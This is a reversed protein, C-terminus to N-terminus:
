TGETLTRELLAVDLGGAGEDASECSSGGVLTTEDDSVARFWSATDGFPEATAGPARTEAARPVTAVGTALGNAAAAEGGDHGRQGVFWGTTGSTLTLAVVALRRHWARNAAANM